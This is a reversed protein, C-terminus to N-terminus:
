NKELNGIFWFGTVFVSFMERISQFQTEKLKQMKQMDAQLSQIQAATQKNVEDQHFDHAQLVGALEERTILDIRSQLALEKAM